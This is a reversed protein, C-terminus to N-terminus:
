IPAKVMRVEKQPTTITVKSGNHREKTMEYCQNQHKIGGEGKKKGTQAKSKKKFHVKM